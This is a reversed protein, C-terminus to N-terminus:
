KSIILLRLFDYGVIITIRKTYKLHFASKQNIVDRLLSTVVLIKLFCGDGHTKLRDCGILFDETIDGVQQIDLKLERHISSKNNM